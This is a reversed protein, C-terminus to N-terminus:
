EGFSSVEGIRRVADLIIEDEGPLVTRPDILVHDEHIRAFVPPENRRLLRALDETPISDSRLRMVVTPLSEGAMSGGGVESESEQIEASFRDGCAELVGRALEDAQRRIDELPRTLMAMLRHRQPLDEPELFLRLTAELAALTLKGIRFVRYLQNKRMPELLDRKGLIIGCQPGGLLKDGSFLTVDAGADISEPASPEHPLDYRALDVLAGSGLDHVCLLGKEHALDALEAIGVQSAFGKVAYNSQHVSLILATEATIAKEYDKLHTKNTCGVDVLRCGALEMIEPIRFSGGIEVMEGRSVIVERGRALTNLVLVTAAANNNVAVTDEAGTIERFLWDVHAERHMRQSTAVDTQVNCFGGAVEALAEGAADSLPSRGLGTHLVIGTANVARGPSRREKRRMIEAARIAVAEEGTDVDQDALLRARTEEVAKRAAQRALVQPADAAAATMRPHALIADVRPLNRLAPSDKEM